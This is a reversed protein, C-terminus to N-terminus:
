GIKETTTATLRVGKGGSTIEVAEVSGGKKPRLREVAQRVPDAAKGDKEFLDGQARKGNLFERAQSIAEDLAVLMESPLSAGHEGGDEPLYPTNFILPAQAGALQKQCTVVLGTGREDEHTLSLGTVTLGEGYMAPLELLRLVPGVFAQMAAAFDPHPVEISRFRHEHQDNRRPGEETVWELLVEAKTLKIKTFSM